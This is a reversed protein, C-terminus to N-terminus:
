YRAAKIAAVRAATAARNAAAIAKNVQEEVRPLLIASEAAKRGCQVSRHVHPHSPSLPKKLTGCDWEGSTTKGNAFTYTGFGQQTGEHWSGEYCHGNAFHYIGFGNIMGNFYEGAYRDGNRFQYFGLGHKVGFKFEGVYYSGDSCSQVGRGHIKGAVWEGAYNGGKYFQCVGFGNQLGRRYHGQYRIGQAWREIGYGDHKGDVWDGEYRGQNFFDYVGSGNCKGLHFEGEYSDGNPYLEVGQKDNIRGGSAPIPSEVDGIFWQVSERRRRPLFLRFKKVAIFAVVFALCLNRISLPEDCFYLYLFIFVTLFILPFLHYSASLVENLSSLSHASSRLFSSINRM